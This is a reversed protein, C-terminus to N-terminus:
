VGGLSLVRVRPRGVFGVGAAAFRGILDSNLDLRGIFIRRRLPFM